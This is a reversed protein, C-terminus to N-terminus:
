RGSLANVRQEAYTKLSATIGPIQVASRYARLAEEYRKDLELSYAMGVWWRPTNNKYELLAFYVKASQEYNGQQQYATALLEHYEPDEEVRPLSQQLLSLSQLTKGQSLLLRSQLKRLTFDNVHIQLSEQLLLQAEQRMGSSLQLTALYGRSVASGESNQAIRKELVSFAEALQGKQVFKRAQSVAEQDSAIRQTKKIPQVPRHAAVATKSSASVPIKAVPKQAKQVTEQVVEKEPANDKSESNDVVQPLVGLIMTTPSHQVRFAFQSEVRTTLMLETRSNDRFVDIRDILPGSTNPLDAALEVGEFAINVSNRDQGLLQIDAEGDLRVVLDGGIETGSWLISHITVKNDSVAEKTIGLPKDESKQPSIVPKSEAQQQVEHADATPEFQLVKEFLLLWVTVGIAILSFLVLVLKLGGFSNKPPQYDATQAAKIPTESGSVSDKKNRQELDRLMDNVLSM